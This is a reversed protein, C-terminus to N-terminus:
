TLGWDGDSWKALSVTEPATLVKEWFTSFPIM